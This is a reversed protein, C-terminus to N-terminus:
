IENELANDNMMTDLALILSDVNNVMKEINGYEDIILHTPYQKVEMEDTMYKKQEAVVPYRFEKKSLFNKLKDAEDFALSLFVVNDYGEYRDYLENLKPFEQVCVTCNIFWCKIVLIKGKTSESTYSNSNLDVFNFEPLPEGEKKFYSYIITSSSKISKSIKEDSSETLEYLQYMYDADPLKIPIYEGTLLNSLFDEKEIEIGDEDVGIFDTSLDINEKHYDKWKEFDVVIKALGAKVTSEIPKIKETAISQEEKVVISPVKSNDIKQLIFTTVFFSISISLISILFNKM